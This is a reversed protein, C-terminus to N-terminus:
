LTTCAPSNEPAPEASAKPIQHRGQGKSALLSLTVIGTLTVAFGVLDGLSIKEGLVVAGTFIGVIPVALLIVSTAMPPLARQITQSAWYGFASELAGSYLVCFLAQVGWNIPKGIDFAVALLGLPVLAVLTEWFILDLTPGEWRHHRLLLITGGMLAASMLMIGSGVLVGPARWDISTPNILLGIGGLGLVLAIAERKSPRARFVVAQLGAVWIPTTYALLATRGAPLFPLAINMLILSAGIQGLGGGLVIPMDHRSPRELRGRAMLVLALVIAAIGLRLVGYTFPPVAELGLKDVTWGPGWVAALLVALLCAAAFTATPSVVQHVRNGLDDTGSATAEQSEGRFSVPGM